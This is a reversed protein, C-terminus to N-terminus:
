ELAFQLIWLPTLTIVRDQMRQGSPRTTTYTIALYVENDLPEPIVVSVESGYRGFDIPSVQYLVVPEPDRSRGWFSDDVGYGWLNPKYFEAIEHEFRDNLFDLDKDMPPFEQEANFYLLSWQNLASVGSDFEFHACQSNGTNPFLILLTLLIAAVVNPFDVYFSVKYYM